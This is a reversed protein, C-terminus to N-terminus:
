EPVRVVMAQTGCRRGRERITRRGVKEVAEEEAVAEGRCKACFCTDAHPPGATRHVKPKFEKDSRQRMSPLLRHSTAFMKIQRKSDLVWDPYGQEAQRVM